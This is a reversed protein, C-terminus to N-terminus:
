SKKHEKARDFIERVETVGKCRSPLLKLKGRLFMKLGLKVDTKWEGTKIKEIFDGSKLSYDRIMSLEHIRGTKKITDLFADHFATIKPESPLQGSELQIQRLVDMVGAIDIDNPCRTTCTECTACIQITRSSLVKKKQGFLVSRIIQHPLIDMAYAVPCGASCKYCQYCAFLERGVTEVVTNRFRSDSNFTATETTM